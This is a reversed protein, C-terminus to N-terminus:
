PSNLRPWYDLFDGVSITFPEVMATDDDLGPRKYLRIVQSKDARSITLHRSHGGWSFSFPVLIALKASPVQRM